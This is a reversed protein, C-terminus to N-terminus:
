PLKVNFMKEKLMEKCEKKLKRFLCEKDWNTMKFSLHIEREMQEVTDIGLEHIKLDRMPEAITSEELGNCKPCICGTNDKYWRFREHRRKIMHGCVLGHYNMPKKCIFCIGSGYDDTSKLRINISFIRDLKENTIKM